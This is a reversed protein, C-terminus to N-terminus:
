IQCKHFFFPVPFPKHSPLVSLRSSVFVPLCLLPSSLPSLMFSSTCSHIYPLAPPLLVPLLSPLSSIYMGSCPRSVTPVHTDASPLLKIQNRVRLRHCLRLSLPLPHSPPHLVLASEGHASLFLLRSPSSSPPPLPPPNLLSPPGLLLSPIILAPFSFSATAWLPTIQRSSLSPTFHSPSLTNWTNGLTPSWLITKCRTEVHTNVWLRACPLLSTHTHSRPCSLIKRPIAPPMWSKDIM